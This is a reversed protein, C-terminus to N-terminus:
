CLRRRGAGALILTFVLMEEVDWIGVGTLWLLM